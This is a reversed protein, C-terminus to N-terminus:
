SPQKALFQDIAQEVLDQVSAGELAAKAKLQRYKNVPIRAGVQQKPVTTTAQLTNPTEVVPSTVLDTDFTLPKRQKTVM